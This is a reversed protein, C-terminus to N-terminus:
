ADVTNPIELTNNLLQGGAYGLIVAVRDGSSAGKPYVYAFQFKGDGTTYIKDTSRVEPINGAGSWNTDLTGWDSETAAAQTSFNDTPIAAVVLASVLFLAGLTKRVTRKLRRTKKRTVDAM